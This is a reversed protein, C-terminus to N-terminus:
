EALEKYAERNQEILKRSIELVLEDEEYRIPETKSTAKTETVSIKPETDFAM